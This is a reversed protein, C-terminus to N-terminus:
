RDRIRLVAKIHNRLEAAFFKVPVPVNLIAYVISKRCRYIITIKKIAPSCELPLAHSSAFVAGFLVPFM